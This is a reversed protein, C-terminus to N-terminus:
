SPVFGFELQLSVNKNKKKRKTLCLFPLHTLRSLDRERLRRTHFSRRKKGRELGASSIWTESGLYVLCASVAYQPKLGVREWEEGVVVVM